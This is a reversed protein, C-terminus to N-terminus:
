AQIPGLQTYPYLEFERQAYVRDLREIFASGIRMDKHIRLFCPIAALRAGRHPSGITFLRAIRLRRPQESDTPTAAADRAVLGGMSLAVVDVETTWCPDSNPFAADVAAIVKERCSEFSGCFFFSVTVIRADGVLQELARATEWSGIGPALYGALVIVPRALHGPESELTAMQERAEDLLLPFDPNRPEPGACSVVVVVCALTAFRVLPRKFPFAALKPM